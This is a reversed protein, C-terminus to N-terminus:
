RQIFHKAEELRTIIQTSLVEEQALKIAQDIAETLNFVRVAEVIAEPVPTQVPTDVIAEPAPTDVIAEPAKAKAM